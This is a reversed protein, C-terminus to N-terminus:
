YVSLRLITHEKCKVSSHIEYGEGYWELKIALLINAFQARYFFIAGVGM